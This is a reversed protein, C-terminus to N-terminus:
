EHGINKHEWNNQLGSEMMFAHVIEHRISQKVYEAKNGLEFQKCTTMDDVVILRETKDVFGDCANLREDSETPEIRVQCAEGLISLDFRMTRM